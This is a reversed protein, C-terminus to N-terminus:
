CCSKKKVLGILEQNSNVVEYKISNTSITKFQDRACHNKAGEIIDNEGKSANTQFNHHKFKTKL